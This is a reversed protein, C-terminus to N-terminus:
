PQAGVRVLVLDDSAAWQAVQAASEPAAALVVMLARDDGVSSEVVLVAVPTVDQGEMPLALLQDGVSLSVPYRGARLLGGIELWGDPVSPGTSILSPGLLDGPALDIAAIKGALEARQSGSFLQTSSSDIAVMTSGLAADTIPDGAEVPAVIMVM